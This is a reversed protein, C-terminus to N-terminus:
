RLHLNKPCKGHYYDFDPYAKSKQGFYDSQTVKYLDTDECTDIKLELEESYV